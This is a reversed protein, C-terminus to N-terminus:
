LDWYSDIDRRGTKRDYRFGDPCRVTGCPNEATAPGLVRSYIGIRRVPIGLTKINCVAEPTMCAPGTAKVPPLVVPPTTATPGPLESSPGPWPLAWPWGIPQPDGITVTPSGEEPTCGGPSLLDYLKGSFKGDPKLFRNVRCFWSPFFWLALGAAILVLAVNSVGVSARTGSM